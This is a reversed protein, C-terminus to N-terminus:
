MGELLTLGNKFESFAIITPKNKDDTKSVNIKTRTMYEGKVQLTKITLDKEVPHDGKLNM